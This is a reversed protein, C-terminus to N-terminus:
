YYLYYIPHPPPGAPPPATAVDARLEAIRFRRPASPYRPRARRDAAVNFLVLPLRSALRRSWSRPLEHRGGAV